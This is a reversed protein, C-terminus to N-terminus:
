GTVQPKWFVGRQKMGRYWKCMINKRRQRSHAKNGSEFNLEQHLLRSWSAKRIAAERMGLLPDPMKKEPSGRSREGGESPVGLIRYQLQKPLMQEEEGILDSLPSNRRVHVLALSMLVCLFIYVQNM